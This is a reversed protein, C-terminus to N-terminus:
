LVWLGVSNLHDKTDARLAIWEFCCQGITVDSSDSELCCQGVNVDKGLRTALCEVKCTFKRVITEMGLCIAIHELRHFSADAHNLKRTEFSSRM